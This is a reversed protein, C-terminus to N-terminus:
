VDNVSETRSLVCVRKLPIVVLWLVICHDPIKEAAGNEEHNDLYLPIMPHTCKTQRERALELM